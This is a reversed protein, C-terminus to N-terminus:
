GGPPRPSIHFWWFDDGADAYGGYKREAESRLRSQLEDDTVRVAHCAYIKGAVRVRVSDHTAAHFPWRTLPNAFNAPLYLGREVVVARATVSHPKQPRVELEVTEVESAFAFDASCANDAGELRKGPLPGLPGSRCAALMLAALLVGAVRTAPHRLVGRGQGQRLERVERQAMDAVEWAAAYRM